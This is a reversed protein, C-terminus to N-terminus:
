RPMREQQHRETPRGPYDGYFCVQLAAEPLDRVQKGSSGCLSKRIKCVRRKDTNREEKESYYCGRRAYSLPFRLHVWRDITIAYNKIVPPIQM